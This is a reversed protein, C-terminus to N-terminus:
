RDSLTRRTGVCNAGVIRQDAHTVKRHRRCQGLRGPRPDPACGAPRLDKHDPIMIQGGLPLEAGLRKVAVHRDHGRGAIRLHHEGERRQRGDRGPMDVDVAVLVARQRSAAPSRSPPSVVSSRSSSISRHSFVASHRNPTALNVPGLRRSDVCARILRGNGSDSVCLRQTETRPLSKSQGSSSWPQVPQLGCFVCGPLAASASGIQLAAHGAGSFRTAEHSQESRNNAYRDSVHISAPVLERHAVRYSGLKDTVVKRPESGHRGVLRRFFPPFPRHGPESIYLGQLLEGCHMRRGVVMEVVFAIEVAALNELLKPGGCQDLPTFQCGSLGRSFTNCTRILQNSLARPLSEQSTRM